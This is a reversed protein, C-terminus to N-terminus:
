KSLRQAYDNVPKGLKIKKLGLDALAEQILSDPDEGNYKGEIVPFKTDYTGQDLYAWVKYFFRGNVANLKVIMSSGVWIQRTELEHIRQEANM